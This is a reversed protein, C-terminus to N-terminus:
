LNVGNLVSVCDRWPECAFVRILRIASCETQFMGVTAGGNEPDDDMILSCETSRAPVISGRNGYLGDADILFMKTGNSDTFENAADVAMVIVNPIVEGGEPGLNPFILEGNNHKLSLKACDAPTMALYFKSTERVTIAALMSTLDNLFAAATSGTSNIQSVDSDFNLLTNLFNYNCSDDIGNRLVRQFFNTVGASTAQLLQNTVVLIFGFKLWDLTTNSKSVNVVPLKGTELTLGVRPSTGNILRTKTPAERIDGRNLMVDFISRTSKSLFGEAIDAMDSNDEFNEDSVGTKLVRYMKDSGGARPSFLQPEGGDLKQFTAFKTVFHQCLQVFEYTETGHRLYSTM